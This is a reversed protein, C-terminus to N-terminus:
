LVIGVFLDNVNTGTPGTYIYDELTKFFTYSDNNLLLQEPDLNLSLGRDWSHGDVIGGAVDTIGDIGDSGISALAVGHLGRIIKAASLALELNRGGVGSGRVTVTTEGGALIALPPKLPNGSKRAEVLISALVEGVFRAEGTLRSTLIITRVGKSELYDKMANLSQINSAVIINRVKKFTPDDPKPTESVLGKLGREIYERISEPLVEWIGYKELIRKADKFTTTDPATPGSAIFEIPDGVVDSIILSVVDAPYATKALWGGKILSIHKRVTNIEQITAGCKLLQNTLEELDKLSINPALKEMLASGGGSILTIVLDGQSANSVLKLIEDGAELSGPGPIPHQAKITRIRELMCHELFKEHVAIVGDEIMDGLIDEVAKAMKCSAKGCGVVFVRKPRYKFEGVYITGDKVKLFRHVAKEPDASKVGVNLCELIYRRARLCNSCVSKGANVLVEFNKIIL